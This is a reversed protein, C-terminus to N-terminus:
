EESLTFPRKIYKRAKKMVTRSLRRDDYDLTVDYLNLADTRKNQLDRGMGMLLYIKSTYTHDQYNRDRSLKNLLLMAEAWENQFILAEAIALNAQLEVGNDYLPVGREVKSRINEAHRVAKEYKGSAILTDAHQLDLYPNNPFQKIVADSIEYAEEVYEKEFLMYISLLLLKSSLGHLKSHEAARKLYLLGEETTGSPLFWLFNLARLFGPLRGAFYTYAGLPFYIEECFESNCSTSVEPGEKPGFSCLAMAEELYHRGTEGKVGGSYMRGRQVDLRGWYIWAIGAYHLIEIDDPREALLAECKKICQSLLAIIQNDSDPNSPDVNNKWFLVSALYFERSPHSSDLDSIRNFIRWAKDYDGAYTSETGEILIDTLKEPPTGFASLLDCWSFITIFILFTYLFKIGNCRTKM